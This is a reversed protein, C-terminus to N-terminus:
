GTWYYAMMSFDVLTLEGDGSLHDEELVLFEETKVKDWWYAM